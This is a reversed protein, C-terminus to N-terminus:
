RQNQKPAPKKLTLYKETLQFSLSPDDMASLIRAVNREEIYSLLKIATDLKGENSYQVLIEAAREAEMQQFWAAMKKLNDTEDDQFETQQSRVQQLKEQAERQDEQLQGQQQHIKQLLSQAQNLADDLQAQFGDLERQAGRVDDHLLQVRHQQRRLREQQEKIAQQQNRYTEGFRFIEEASLTQRDRVPVPLDGALQGAGSGAAAGVAQPARAPLQDGLPNPQGRMQRQQWLWSLGAGAGFLLLCLICNTLIRVM